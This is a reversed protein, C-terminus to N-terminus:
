MELLEEIKKIFEEAFDIMEKAEKESPYYSVDYQTAHRSSRFRDLLEIHEFSIKGLQAYKSELYRVVCNHSKERFGDRYLLSKAANFMALYSMVVASNIRKSNLNDRAEKLITKAKKLSEIAKSNSPPVKRLLGKRM